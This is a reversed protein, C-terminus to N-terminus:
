PDDKRMGSLPPLPLEEGYRLSARVRALSSKGLYKAVYRAAQRSTEVLRFDSFGHSWQSKLAAHRVQYRPDPEHILCHYHPLGSKHAEAVFLYRMPSGSQKRLRKLYKTIEKGIQNHLYQFKVMDTLNDYDTGQRSLGARARSVMLHHIEPRLTLTGLWTRCSRSMETEARRQWLSARFKLCAECKRCPVWMEVSYPAPGGPRVTFSRGEQELDTPRHAPRGYNEIWQPDQCRGSIDWTTKSRSVATGGKSLARAALHHVDSLHRM